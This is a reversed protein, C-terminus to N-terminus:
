FDFLTKQTKIETILSSYPLWKDGGSLSSIIDIGESLDAPTMYNEKMAKRAAERIVWTGLPAWYEGTVRRVAIVRASRRVSELYELVALRASYYAGAIQSYGQKRKMGESDSVITASEGGSWLSNKEWIEVMEYRWDGPILMVAMNNGHICGNFVRIEELPPYGSINKKLVGSITDDVATISWRTPVIHRKVGLLGSSLLNQIHHLETGGRYLEAIADNAKLDTDSTIKDVIRPVLANDLVSMDSVVGSLGVPALVGDFRLDFRVPKVFAVEVDVPRASLAIEQISDGLNKEGSNGRITGSRIRVIDDISYNRCVWHEPNDNERSLLPGGSVDPYNKSGVFVSPSEGMYEKVPKADSRAYFRSMVPCKSLGCLGKGKCKICLNASQM